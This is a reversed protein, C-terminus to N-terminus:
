QRGPGREADAALAAYTRLHCAAVQEWSCLTRVAAAAARGMQRALEPHGILFEAARAVGQRDGYEVGIGTQYDVVLAEGVGKRTSIVPLGAAMPEVICQGFTESRTGILGAQCRSLVWPVLNRDIPGALVVQPGIGLACALEELRRRIRQEGWGAFILRAHPHRRLAPAAGQLLWDHGKGRKFAALYVLRFAQPDALVGALPQDLEGPQPRRAIGGTWDEVGWLALGGRGARLVKGANVFQDVAGTSLFMTYDVHRRLLHSLLFSYPRRKWTPNRFSLVTYVIKLRRPHRKKLPLLANLQRTGLVHAIVRPERRLLEEAAHRFARTEDALVILREPAFQERLRQWLGPADEAGTSAVYVRVGLPEAQRRLALAQCTVLYSLGPRVNRVQHSYAALLVCYDAM